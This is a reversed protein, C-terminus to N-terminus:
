SEAPVAEADPLDPLHRGNAKQWDRMAAAQDRAAKIARPDGNSSYLLNAWMEVVQPALVDRARLLFVPEDAAIPRCGNGLLSPDEVAPDQIRDYDPRAHKM